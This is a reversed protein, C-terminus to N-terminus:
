GETAEKTLHRPKLAPVEPFLWREFPRLLNFWWRTGKYYFDLPVQYCGLRSKFVDATSGLHILADDTALAYRLDELMLNFYLNSAANIDYDFGCFLNYYKGHWSMAWIFGAIQQERYGVTLHIQGPFETCLNRFFQAPLRELVSDARERVGEHLRHVEDTYLALARASDTVREVRLGSQRFKKVMRRMQNRYRSRMSEILGELGGTRPAVFNDPLSDARGYGLGALSRLEERRDATFEKLVILHSKAAAAYADIADSLVALVRDQNCGSRFRLCNGGTTPPVGGITLKVYFLSPMFRRLVRAVRKVPPSTLLLMDVSLSTVIAAAVPQDDDYVLIPTLACEPMSQELARMLPLSMELDIQGDQAAAWDRAPLENSGSFVLARYRQHRHVQLAPLPASTTTDGRLRLRPRQRRVSESIGTSQEM